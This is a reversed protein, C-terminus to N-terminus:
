SALTFSLGNFGPSKTNLCIRPVAFFGAHPFNPGLPSTLVWNPLVMDCWMQPQYLLRNGQLSLHAHLVVGKSHLCNSSTNNNIFIKRQWIFEGVIYFCQIEYQEFKGFILYFRLGAHSRPGSAQPFNIVQPLNKLTLCFRLGAYSRPGSAQPFNIVQPLNKLTLCFRLRAHSRLGSAQPFNIVQPLNKLTLCFRLGAHSM